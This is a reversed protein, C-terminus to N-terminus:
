IHTTGGVLKERPVGSVDIQGTLLAGEQEIIRNALVNLLTTKGSPGM